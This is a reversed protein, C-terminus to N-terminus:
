YTIEETIRVKGRFLKYCVTEELDTMELDYVWCDFGVRDGAALPLNTTTGFDLYPTIMTHSPYTIINPTEPLVFDGFLVEVEGELLVPLDYKKRIKWNYTWTSYDGEILLSPGRFTTGRIVELDKIIPQMSFEGIILEEIIDRIDVVLIIDKKLITFISGVIYM